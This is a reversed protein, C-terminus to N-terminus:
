RNLAELAFKHIWESLKELEEWNNSQFNAFNEPEYLVCNQETLTELTQSIFKIPKALEEFLNAIRNYPKIPM